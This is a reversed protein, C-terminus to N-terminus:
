LLDPINIHLIHTKENIADRIRITMKKRRLVTSMSKHLKVANEFRGYRGWRDRLVICGDEDDVGDGKFSGFGSLESM